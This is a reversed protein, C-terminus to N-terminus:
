LRQYLLTHSQCLAGADRATRRPRSRRRYMGFYNNCGRGTETIARWGASTYSGPARKDWSRPIEKLM